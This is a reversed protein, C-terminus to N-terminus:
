ESTGIYHMLFKKNWARYFHREFDELCHSGRHNAVAHRLISCQVLADLFLETLEEKGIALNKEGGGACEADHFAGQSIQYTRTACIEAVSGKGVLPVVYGKAAALLGICDPHLPALGDRGLKDVAGKCAAPVVAKGQNV